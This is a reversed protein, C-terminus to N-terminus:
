TKSSLAEMNDGSTSSADVNIESHCVRVFIFVDIIIVQELLRILKPYPIIEAIYKQLEDGHLMSDKNFTQTYLPLRHNYHSFSIRFVANVPRNESDTRKLNISCSVNGTEPVQDFTMEYRWSTQLIKSKTKYDQSFMWNQAASLNNAHITHHVQSMESTEVEKIIVLEENEAM